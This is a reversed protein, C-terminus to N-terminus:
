RSGTCVPAIATNEEAIFHMSLSILLILRMILRSSSLITGPIHRAREVHTFNQEVTVVQDYETGKELTKMIAVNNLTLKSVRPWIVCSSTQTWLCGAARHNTCTPHMESCKLGKGLLHAFASVRSRLTFIVSCQHFLVQHTVYVQVKWQPM